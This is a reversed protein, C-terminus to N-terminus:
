ARRHASGKRAAPIRARRSPAQVPLPNVAPNAMRIFKEPRLLSAVSIDEDIAEWHVGIGGGILEWKKRQRASAQLLRPFWALPVSVTRGDDLVVTLEDDSCSVELALAENPQVSTRM